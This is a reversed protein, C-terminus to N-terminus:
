KRRYKRLMLKREPNYFSLPEATELECWQEILPLIEVEDDYDRPKGDVTCPIWRKIDDLLWFIGGPKIATMLCEIHKEVYLIHQFAWISIAGSIRLGDDVLVKFMMPNIVCFTDKDVYIEAHIRMTQSFDVGIIPNKIEKSLRGIGCGYDVILEDDTNFKIRDMLWKTEVDWRQNVDLGDYPGLITRKAEAISRVTFYRNDYEIKSYEVREPESSVM